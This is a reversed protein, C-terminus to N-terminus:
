VREARAPGAGPVGVQQEHTAAVRAEARRPEEATRMTLVACPAARVIKDAVSGMMLRAVGGRGHTAMVVLDIDGQAQLYDLIEQAAPGTRHVLTAHYRDKEEATLLGELQRRADRELAEFYEPPPAYPSSPDM